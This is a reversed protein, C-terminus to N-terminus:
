GKNGNGTYVRYLAESTKRNTRYIGVYPEEIYYEGGESYLFLKRARDKEILTVGLFNDTTPYDNVSYRLTKRAGTLASLISDIQGADTIAVRGVTLMDNFQEMEVATVSATDPLELTKVMKTLLIILGVAVVVVAACIIWFSPKKYRPAGPM